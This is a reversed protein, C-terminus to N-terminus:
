RAVEIWILTRKQAKPPSNHRTKTSIEIPFKKKINSIFMDPSNLLKSSM